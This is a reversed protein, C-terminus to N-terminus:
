RTVANTWWNDPNADEIQRLMKLAADTSLRPRLYDIWDRELDPRAGLNERVHLIADLTDADNAVLAEPSSRDIMEDLYVGLVERLESGLPLVQHAFAIRFAEGSDVYRKALHNLDGIRTEPLDHLLTITVAREVDCGTEHALLLAIVAARFSHAAVSEPPDMRALMWGTRPTRKLHGVEFLFDAVGGEDGDAM